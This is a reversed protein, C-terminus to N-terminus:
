TNKEGIKRCEKCLQREEATNADEKVTFKLQCIACPKNKM